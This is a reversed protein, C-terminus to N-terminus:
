QINLDDKLRREWDGSHYRRKAESSDILQQKKMKLLREDASDLVYFANDEVPCELLVKETHDFLLVIYGYVGARGKQWESWPLALVKDLREQSFGKLRGSSVAERFYARVHEHTQEGPPLIEFDLTVPGRGGSGRKPRFADRIRRRARDVIEERKDNAERARKARAREQKWTALSREYPKRAQEYERRRRLLEEKRSEEESEVLPLEREAAQLKKQLPQVRHESQRRRMADELRELAQDRRRFAARLEDSPYSYAPPPSPGDYVPQASVTTDEKQAEAKAEMLGVLDSFEQQSLPTSGDTPTSPETRRQLADYIFMGLRALNMSECAAWYPPHEPETLTTNGKKSVM